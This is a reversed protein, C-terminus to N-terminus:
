AQLEQMLRRYTELGLRAAEAVDTHFAKVVPQAVGKSNMAIEVSSYPEPSLTSEREILDGHHDTVTRTTVHM